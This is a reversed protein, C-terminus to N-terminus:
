NGSVQSGVTVSVVAQLTGTAAVADIIEGRTVPLTAFGVESGSHRVYYAGGGAGIAAILLLITIARKM